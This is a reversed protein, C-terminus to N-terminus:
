KALLFGIAIASGVKWARDVWVAWTQRAKITAGEVDRVRMLLGKEPTGNGLLATHMDNVKALLAPFGQVAPCTGQARKVGEEAARTAIELVKLSQGEDFIPESM